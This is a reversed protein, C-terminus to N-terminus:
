NSLALILVAPITVFVAIALFYRALMYVVGRKTVGLRELVVIVLSAIAAGVMFRADTFFLYIAVLGAAIYAASQM